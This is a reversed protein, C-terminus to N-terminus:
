SSPLEAAEPDRNNPPRCKVVNTIYVDKRDIGVQTLMETLFKGSRGVFPRGQRDEDQGPGEGVFMVIANGNGEGPVAYTREQALACRRCGNVDAELAQMATTQSDSASGPVLNEDPNM